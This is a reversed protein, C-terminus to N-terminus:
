SICSCLKLIFDNSWKWIMPFTPFSPWHSCSVPEFMPDKGRGPMRTQPLLM